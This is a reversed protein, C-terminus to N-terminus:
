ENRPVTNSPLRNRCPLFDLIAGVAGLALANSHSSRLNDNRLSRGSWTLTQWQPLHPRHPLVNVTGSDTSEPKPGSHM